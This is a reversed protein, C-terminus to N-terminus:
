FMKLFYLWFFIQFNPFSLSRSLSLSLSLSLTFIFFYFIAVFYLSFITSLPSVMGLQSLPLYLHSTPPFAHTTTSPSAGALQRVYIM